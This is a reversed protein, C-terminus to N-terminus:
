LYYDVAVVAFLIADFRDLMGGHGPMVGGADKLMYRRKFMSEFLDGIQGTVSIIVGILAWENPTFRSVLLSAVFATAQGFVVAGLVGELTKRPSLRVMIPTSGFLKGFFYAGADSFWGISLVSVILPVNVSMRFGVHCAQTIWIFGTSILSVTGFTLEKDMITIIYFLFLIKHDFGKVMQWQAMLTVLVRTVINMNRVDTLEIWMKVHVVSWWLVIGYGGYYFCGISLLAAVLASWFRVFVDEM